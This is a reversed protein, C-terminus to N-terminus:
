GSKSGDPGHCVAVENRKLGTRTRAPVLTRAESVLHALLLRTARSLFTYDLTDPTDSDRHYHPNRLEATDTWM